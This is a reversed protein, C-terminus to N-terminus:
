WDRWESALGEGYSKPDLGAAIAIADTLECLEEREGTEILAYGCQENLVNTKLIAEKFLVLKTETQANEGANILGEILEDFIQQCANCNAETYQTLGQAYLDEWHEFPYTTKAAHLKKAYPSEAEPSACSMMFCILSLYSILKLM